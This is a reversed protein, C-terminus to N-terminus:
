AWRILAHPLIHGTSQFLDVFQGMIKVDFKILVGKTELYKVVNVKKCM